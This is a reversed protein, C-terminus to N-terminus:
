DKKYTFRGRRDIVLGWGDGGQIGQLSMWLNEYDENSIDLRKPSGGSMVKDDQLETWYCSDDYMDILIAAKGEHCRHPFCGTLLLYRGSIVRTESAVSMSYRLSRFRPLSVVRTLSKRALEDEYFLDPHVGILKYYKPNTRKDMFGVGAILNIEKTKRSGYKDEGIYIVAVANRLLGQEDFDFIIKKVSGDILYKKIYDDVALVVFVGEWQVSNGGNGYEGLVLSPNYKDPYVNLIHVSADAVVVDQDSSKLGRAYVYSYGDNVLELSTGNNMIVKDDVGQSESYSDWVMWEYRVGANDSLHRVEAISPSTQLAIVAITAVM